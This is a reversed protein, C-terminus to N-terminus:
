YIFSIGNQKKDLIARKLSFYYHKRLLYLEEREKRLLLYFRNENLGKGSWFHPSVVLIATDARRALEDVHARWFNGEALEGGLTPFFVIINKGELVKQMRDNERRYLLLASFAVFAAGFILIPVLLLLAVALFFFATGFQLFVLLYSYVRFLLSILRFKRFVDLYQHWLHYFQTKQLLSSLYFLYSKATLAHSNRARESLSESINAEHSHTRKKRSTRLPPLHPSIM